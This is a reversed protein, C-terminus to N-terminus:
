RKYFYIRSSFLDGVEIVKEPFSRPMSFAFSVLSTLSMSEIKEELCVMARPFLYCVILSDEELQILFFDKRFFSLNPCKCFFKRIESWLWPIFSLEYAEVRLHPYQKALSFAMGGWGSGLEYIKGRKRNPLNKFLAKKGKRSIPM